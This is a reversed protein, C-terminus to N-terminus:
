RYFNPSSVPFSCERPKIWKPPGLFKGEHFFASVPRHLDISISICNVHLALNNVSVPLPFMQYSQHRHASSTLTPSCYSTSPPSGTENTKDRRTDNSLM